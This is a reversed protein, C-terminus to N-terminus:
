LAKASRLARWGKKISEMDSYNHQVLVVGGSTGARKAGTSLAGGSKAAVAVTDAGDIRQAFKVRGGAGVHLLFDQAPAETGLLQNILDNTAGSGGGRGLLIHGRQRQTGTMPDFVRESLAEKVGGVAQGQWLPGTLRQAQANSLGLATLDRLLAERDREEPNNIAKVLKDTQEETTDKQTDLETKSREEEIRQAEDSPTTEAIKGYADLLYPAALGLMPNVTGAAAVGGIKMGSVLQDGKGPAKSLGFRDLIAPDLEGLNTSRSIEKVWGKQQAIRQNYAEIEPNLRDLKKQAEEKEPGESRKVVKELAQRETLKESLVKRNTDLDSQIDRVMQSRKERDETSLGFVNLTGYIDQVVGYIQELLYEVGQELIKSIDTTNEAIEQALLIDEAVKEEEKGMYEDGLALVLDQLTAKLEPGSFTAEEDFAGGAGRKAKYLKGGRMRVGFSEGYLQNFEDEKSPQGQYEKITNLQGRFYQGTRQLQRFEEGQQGTITEAAIMREIDTESIQDLDKGFVERAEGLKLLLSAGAGAYSRGAVAGGLGGKFAQSQDVLAGLSRGLGADVAAGKARLTNIQDPSLSALKRARQEATMDATIGVDELLKLMRGRTQDGAEDLQRQFEASSRIADAQLVQLSYGTGTTMTKRVKEQTGEGKFGQTLQQLFQGAKQEGLIKGLQILLGATEELRVNYMSMGSTAQLVMNFFRKTSFGSEKAAMAINSFRNQVGELTLGLEEMYTAMSTSIEQSSMGLLKSYTLAAVTYGKLAEMEEGAKRVGGAMERFTLGADSYAGLIELHDKATTGWIRNFTFAETFTKRVDDIVGDLRGFQNALDAGAVGGELLTRNLDKMASDAAVAVGIIATIGAAVASLGAIVPGLKGILGGLQGLLGAGTGGLGPIGKGQAARAELGAGRASIRKAAGQLIGALDGSKIRNFTGEIAEGFEQGAEAFTRSALREAEQLADKRRQLIEETAKKEVKFQQELHYIRIRHQEKLAKEQANLGKDREQVELAFLKRQAEELPKTIRALNQGIRNIKAGSFAADAAGLLSESFMRRIDTQASQFKRLLPKVDFSAKAGIKELDKIFKDADEIELALGLTTTLGAM